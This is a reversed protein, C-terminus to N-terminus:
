RAVEIVVEGEAVLTTEGTDADMRWAGGLMLTSNLWVTKADAWVITELLRPDDHILVTQALTGADVRVISYAEKEPDSIAMTFMLAKGDPSWVINGAQLHGDELVTKRETGTALDRLVLELPGIGTIVALLTGDPSLSLACLCGQDPLIEIITGTALDVQQLDPGGWFLIYGGIGYPEDTFYLYRGDSSWQAPQPLVSDALRRDLLIQEGSGDVNAVTVKIHTDGAPDPEFATTGWAIREGDPSPLIQGEFFNGGPNVFPLDLTTGDFAARRAMQSSSDLYFLYNGAAWQESSQTLGPATFTTLSNGTAPDVVTLVAPDTTFDALVVA